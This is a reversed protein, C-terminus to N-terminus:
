CIPYCCTAPISIKKKKELLLRCVLNRRSQLESTHEESRDPNPAEVEPMSHRVAEFPTVLWPNREHGRWCVFAIRGRPRLANHVNSFAVNPNAFFMVGFQSFMVDFSAPAFEYTEADANVINVTVAASKSRQRAILDSSPM